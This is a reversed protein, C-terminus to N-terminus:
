HEDIDGGKPLARDKFCTLILTILLMAPILFQDPGFVILCAITCVIGTVASFHNKTEMWQATFSAVFLATMSFDIGETSFPLVGGIAAGIMTGVIWYSQNFLTVLFRYVHINEGKPGKDNVLLSYTEDTLGFILYPRYKGGDKYRDIMSISYFLHRANVMITTIITTILSAGGAILDVAVFQMSGAYITLSMAFAWWIGYGAKKLLIGMGIGLFVYGAMVPLSTIFAAKVVRRNM